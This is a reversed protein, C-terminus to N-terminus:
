SLYETNSILTKIAHIGYDTICNDALNLSELKTNILSNQLALVSNIGLKMSQFNLSNTKKANRKLIEEKFNM